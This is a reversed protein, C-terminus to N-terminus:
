QISFLIDDCQENIDVLKNVLVVEFTRNLQVFDELLFVRVRSVDVFEAQQEFLVLFLEKALHFPKSMLFAISNNVFFM